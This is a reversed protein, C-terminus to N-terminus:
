LLSSSQQIPISKCLVMWVQKANYPINNLKNASQEAALLYPLAKGPMEADMYDSAFDMEILLVALPSFTKASQMALSDYYFVKQYNRTKRGCRALARYGTVIKDPLNGSKAVALIQEAYHESKIIDTKYTENHLQIYIIVKDSDHPVVALKELLGTENQAPLQIFVLSFFLVYGFKLLLINATKNDIMLDFLNFYLYINKTSYFFLCM